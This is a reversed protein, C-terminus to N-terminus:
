RTGVLRRVCDLLQEPRWPKPLMPGLGPKRPATTSYGTMYIVHLQPHIAKAREALAWGNLSGPMRIDTLLLSFGDPEILRLLAADGTPEAIVDYGAHELVSVVTERVDPDDEAVLIRHQGAGQKQM